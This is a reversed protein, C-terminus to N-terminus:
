SGEWWRHFKGPDFNRDTAETVIGRELRLIRPHKGLDHNIIYAVALVEPIRGFVELIRHAQMRYHNPSGSFHSHLQGNVAQLYVPYSGQIAALEPRLDRLMAEPPFEICSAWGHYECHCDQDDKEM